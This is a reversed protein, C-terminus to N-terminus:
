TRSVQTLNHAKQSARSDSWEAQRHFPSVCSSPFKVMSIFVAYIIHPLRQEGIGLPQCGLVALRVELAIVQFLSLAGCESWRILSKMECGLIDTSVFVDEALIPSPHFSFGVHDRLVSSVAAHSFRCASQLANNCLSCRLISKLVEQKRDKM